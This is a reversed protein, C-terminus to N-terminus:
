EGIKIYYFDRSIHGTLGDCLASAEWLCDQGKILYRIFVHIYAYVIFWLYEIMSANRKEFLARNRVMLYKALAGQASISASGKHILFASWLCVVDFGNRHAQLCWETEEFFLFYCEPILGLQAFDRTRVMLCAGSVYPCNVAKSKSIYQEGRHWLSVDGHRLNITAGASQIINDSKDELIVPGVIGCKPTSELYRALQRLMHCNPLTDNNLICLYDDNLNDLVYQVGINNGAAYGRNEDSQIYFLNNNNSYKEQLMVGSGDTSANDVLIVSINDEGLIGDVCKVTDFYNNYNLVVVAVRGDYASISNDGM